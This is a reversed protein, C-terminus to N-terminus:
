SERPATLGFLERAANAVEDADGTGARERLHVTPQHLLKKVLTRSLHEIREATEPDVEGLDSLARELERQRIDEARRRLASLLPEVELEHYRRRFSEVEEDVIAEVSPV